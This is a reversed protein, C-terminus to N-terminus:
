FKTKCYLKILSLNTKLILAQPAEKSCLQNLSRVTIELAEALNQKPMKKEILFRYIMKQIVEICLSNDTRKTQRQWSSNNKNPNIITNKEQSDTNTSKEMGNSKHQIVSFPNIASHSVSKDMNNSIM